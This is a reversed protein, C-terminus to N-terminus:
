WGALRGAPGGGRGTGAGRGVFSTLETPLKHAPPRAPAASPAAPIAAGPAALTALEALLAAASPPRDEPRKALLRLLLAGWAAPLDPRRATPPPPTAHLHQSVVLLPDDGEFPPAGTAAEYLLCGLAYLDARGDVAQGLAQEPAVYAPTGLALGPLTLRARNTAYAIGLDTLKAEWAPAGPRDQRLPVLLVNEPKVDRHVVGQAHAHALAAALHGALRALSDLALPGSTELHRRLAPGDVRELVLHLRGAEEFM